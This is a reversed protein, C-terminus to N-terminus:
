VNFPTHMHQPFVIFIWQQVSVKGAIVNVFYFHCCKKEKKQHVNSNHVHVIRFYLCMYFFFWIRHFLLLAFNSSHKTLKIKWVRKDVSQLSFFVDISYSHSFQSRCFFFLSQVCLFLCLFHVCLVFWWVLFPIFHGCVKNTNQPWSTYITLQAQFIPKCTHTQKHTHTSNSDLAWIVCIIHENNKLLSFSVCMFLFFSLSVNLFYFVFFTCSKFAISLSFHHYYKERKIETIKRGENLHKITHTHIQTYPKADYKQQTPKLERVFSVKQCAGSNLCIAYLICKHVSKERWISIYEWIEIYM